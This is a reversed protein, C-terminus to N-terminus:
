VAMCVEYGWLHMRKTQHDHVNSRELAQLAPNGQLKEWLPAQLARYKASKEWAVPGFGIKKQM